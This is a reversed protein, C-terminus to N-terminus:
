SIKEKIYAQNNSSINEIKNKLQSNMYNNFKNLEIGKSELFQIIESIRRKNVMRDEKRNQALMSETQLYYLGDYTM